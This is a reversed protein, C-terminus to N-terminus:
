WRPAPRTQGGCCHAPPTPCPTHSVIEIAKRIRCEIRAKDDTIIVQVGLLEIMARKDEFTPNSLSHLTTRRFNLTAEIDEDTIIRSSLNADMERKREILSAYQADIREAEHELATAVAGGKKLRALQKAIVDAQETHDAILTNITDLESQINETSQQGLLQAERLAEALAAEDQILGLIYNWVICELQEGNVYKQNCAEKRGRYLERHNCRYHLKKRSYHGGAGFVQM